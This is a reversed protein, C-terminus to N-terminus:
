QRGPLADVISVGDVIPSARVKDLMATVQASPVRVYYDGLQGPGAALDGGVSMLLFRIDAEKADPAINLKLMPGETVKTARLARIEETDNNSQRVMTFIVGAQVTFLALAAFAVAPRMGFGGFFASIKEAFTPQDGRILRMAKDLGITAPVAPANQRMRTQLSQYFALESRADPTTKMYADVWARDEDSISGNVYWPLLESFRDASM